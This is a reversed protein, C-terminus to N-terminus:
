QRRKNSGNNKLEKMVCIKGVTEKVGFAYVLDAAPSFYRSPNKLSTLQQTCEFKM